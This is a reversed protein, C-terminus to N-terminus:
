YMGQVSFLIIPFRVFLVYVHVYVQLHCACAHVCINCLPMYSCCLLCGGCVNVTYMHLNLKLQKLNEWIYTPWDMGIAIYIYMVESSKIKRRHQAM